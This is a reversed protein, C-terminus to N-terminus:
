LCPEGLHSPRELIVLIMSLLQLGIFVNIPTLLCCLFDIEEQQIQCNYKHSQDICCNYNHDGLHSMQGMTDSWHGVTESGPNSPTPGLTNPSRAQVKTHCSHSIGMM